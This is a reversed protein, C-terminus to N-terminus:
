DGGFFPIDIGFDPLDFNSFDIDPMNFDPLDFDSMVDILSYPRSYILMLGPDVLSINKAINLHKFVLEINYALVVKAGLSKLIRKLTDPDNKQYYAYYLEVEQVLHELQNKIEVGKKTRFLRIHYFPFVWRLLGKKQLPKIIYRKTFKFYNYKLRGYIHRILREPTLIAETCDPEPYNAYHDEICNIILEYYARNVEAAQYPLLKIYQYKETAIEVEKLEIFGLVILESIASAILEKGTIKYPTILLRAETLSLNEILDPM